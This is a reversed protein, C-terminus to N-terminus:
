QSSEIRKIIEKKLLNLLKDGDIKATILKAIKDALESVFQQTFVGIQEPTMKELSDQWDLPKRAEAKGKEDDSITVSEPETSRIKDMEKKFEDIFKDAGPAPEASPQDKTGSDPPPTVPDVMSSTESFALDAPPQDGSTTGPAPPSASFGQTDKQMENIFWNYDHARDESELNAVGDDILGYQDSLIELKGSSSMPDKKKVQDDRKQHGIEADSDSIILSEVKGSETQDEERDYHDFGVMKEPSKKKGKGSSVATKDMVESDTVDIQDLGLAADLIEDELQADSLPNAEATQVNAASGAFANVKDLFERPELPRSIIVEEPFPLGAQEADALLLLPVASVRPDEQIQEYLPERGRGLLDSGVIILDPRSLELVELAKEGSIVSIVEYGNQRLSSEAVGRVTDSEEALLVRKRM